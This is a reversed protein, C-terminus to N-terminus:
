GINNLHYFRSSHSLRHMYRTYRLPSIYVSNQHPIRLSHSLKSSEPTSSLIINLQIKLFHSTPTHLPILQSLIPVPPQFKHIRYHLKPNWLIRPIEQSASFPHAERSASQETSYTLLNMQVKECHRMNDSGFISVKAGSDAQIDSHLFWYYPM